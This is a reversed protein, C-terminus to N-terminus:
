LIPDLIFDDKPAVLPVRKKKPKAAGPAFAGAPAEPDSVAAKPVVAGPPPELPGKRGCASLALVIGGAVLMRRSIM